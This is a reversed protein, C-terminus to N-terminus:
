SRDLAYSPEENTNPEHMLDVMPEVDLAMQTEEYVSSSAGAIVNVDRKEANGVQDLFEAELYYLIGKRIMDERHQAPPIEVDVKTISAVGNPGFVYWLGADNGGAVSMATQGSGSSTVNM